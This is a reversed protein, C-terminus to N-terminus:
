TAACLEEISCAVAIVGVMPMPASSNRATQTAIIVAVINGATEGITKIYARM